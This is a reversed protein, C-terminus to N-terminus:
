PNIVELFDTNQTPKIPKIGSKYYIKILVLTNYAGELQDKESKSWQIKSCSM